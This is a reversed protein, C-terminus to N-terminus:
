ATKRQPKAPAEKLAMRARSQILILLDGLQLYFDLQEHQEKTMGPKKTMAGLESARELDAKSLKLKLLARAAEPELDDFSPSFIREYVAQKDTLQM